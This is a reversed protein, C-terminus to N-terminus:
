AMAESRPAPPPPPPVRWGGGGGCRVVQARPFCHLEDLPGTHSASNLYVSTNNAEGRGFPPPPPSPHLPANGGLAAFWHARGATCYLAVDSWGSATTHSRGCAGSATATHLPVFQPCLAKCRTMLPSHHCAGQAVCVVSASHMHVCVWVWVIPVAFLFLALFATFSFEEPAAPCGQVDKPSNSCRLTRCQDTCIYHLVSGCGGVWGCVCVSADCGFCLLSLPFGESWFLHRRTRPIGATCWCLPPFSLGSVCMRVAPPFGNERLECAALPARPGSCSPNM